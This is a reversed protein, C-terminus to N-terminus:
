YIRVYTYSCSLMPRLPKGQKYYMSQKTM